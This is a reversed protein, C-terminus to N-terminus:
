PTVRCFFPHAHDRVDMFMCLCVYRGFCNFCDLKWTSVLWNIVSNTVLENSMSLFLNWWNGLSVIYMFLAIVHYYVVMCYWIILVVYFSDMWELKRAVFFGMFENTSDYLHYSWDHFACKCTISCLIVCSYVYKLTGDLDFSLILSFIGIEM